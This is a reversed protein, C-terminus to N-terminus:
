KMEIQSATKAFKKSMKCNQNMKQCLNLGSRYKLNTVDGVEYIMQRGADEAKKQM